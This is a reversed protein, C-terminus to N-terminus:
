EDRLGADIKIKALRQIRASDIEIDGEDVKWSTACVGYECYMREALQGNEDYILLEGQENDGNRYEGETKIKGNPHYEKFPGNENNNEFSVEEKMEGSDYWGKWLGSMANDVYQGEQVLQGQENFKQYPGDFKGNVYTEIYDTQGNEFFVTRPGHLEGEKYYSEELIKGSAFFAEYKGQRVETGKKLTIRETLLGNDDYNEIIEGEGCKAALLPLLFLLYHLHFKM